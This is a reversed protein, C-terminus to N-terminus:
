DQKGWELNVRISGTTLVVRYYKIELYFGSPIFGYGGLAEVETEGAPPLNNGMALPWFFWGENEPEMEEETYSRIYPYKSIDGIGPLTGITAMDQDSLPAVANPDQSLAVQWALMRDEDKIRVTVYDNKDYDESIAFGGSIWRGESSGAEGPVKVLVTATKTNPDVEAKAKALKTTKDNKEFQTTVERPVSVNGLSKYDSLFESHEASNAVLFCKLVLGQNSIYTSYAGNPEEVYLWEASTSSILGKFFSWNVEIM